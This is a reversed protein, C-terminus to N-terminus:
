HKKTALKALHRSVTRRSIGLDEALRKINRGDFHREIYRARFVTTYNLPIYVTLGSGKLILEKVFSVGTKRALQRLGENPLDEVELNELVSIM